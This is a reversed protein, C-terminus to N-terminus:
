ELFILWEEPMKKNLRLSLVPLWEPQKVPNALKMRAEDPTRCGKKRNCKACCSVVNEWNTQGGKSRPILHDVTLTKQDLDCLCYQCKYQDRALLNSRTLPPKCRTLKVFRLLRVVSPVKLVISVSRVEDEYTDVVEVKGLFSLTIAKKWSIVALPEFSANLLLTTNM